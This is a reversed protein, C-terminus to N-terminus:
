RRTRQEAVAGKELAASLYFDAEAEDFFLKAGRNQNKVIIKLNESEGSCRNFLVADANSLQEAMMEGTNNLYLAFTSADACFLIRDIRYGSPLRVRLLDSIPWTGNYEILILDPDLERRIKGFLRASIQYGFAVDAQVVNKNRLFGAHLETLGEECQIVVIKEYQEMEESGLIRQLPTTKGSELFGCVVEIKTKEMQKGGANGDENGTL